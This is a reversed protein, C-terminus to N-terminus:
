IGLKWYVVLSYDSIQYTLCRGLGPVHGNKKRLIKKKAIRPRESKLRSKLILTHCNRHFVVMNPKLQSSMYNVSYKPFSNVYKCSQRGIMFM